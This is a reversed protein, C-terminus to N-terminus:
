TGGDFQLISKLRFQISEYRIKRCLLLEKGRYEFIRASRILNHQFTSLVNDHCMFMQHSSYAFM